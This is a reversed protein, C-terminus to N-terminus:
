RGTEATELEPARPFDIETDHVHNFYNSLTKQGIIVCIEAIHEDNYGAERLKSIDSDGVFGKTEMVRTTFSYLSNLKSDSGNGSRLDMVQEDELGQKQLTMTHASICYDCGNYQSAALRVVDAEIGTMKGQSILDDLMLYAKLAIPSNALGLFLNPIM